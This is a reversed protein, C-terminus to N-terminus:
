RVPLGLIQRAEKPTAIERDLAQAITIAKRVQEANSKALVGKSIYLNDEFGVRIHGGLVIGLTIMPFQAPGVGLVSWTSGQPLTEKLHFLNKPTASIGGTIGLCLQFHPDGKILGKDILRRAIDIHGTDFIELEPKSGAELIIEAMREVDPFTNAMIWRNFNITGIDLSCMEPKLEPIHQTRREPNTYLSDGAQQKEKETFVIRGGIGTTLNVIMDCKSRVTEFVERYYSVEMSPKRTKPDRVHVHVIAAGEQYCEIAAQAIEQPTVPLNTQKEKSDFSGTVAATIIVKGM